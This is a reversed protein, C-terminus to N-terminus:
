DCVKYLVYQKLHKNLFNAITEAIELSLSDIVTSCLTQNSRQVLNSKVINHLPQTNVTTSNSNEM